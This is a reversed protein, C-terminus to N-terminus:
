VLHSLKARYGLNRMRNASTMKLKNTGQAGARNTQSREWQKQCIRSKYSAIKEENCFYM